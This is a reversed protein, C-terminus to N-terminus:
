DEGLEQSAFKLTRCNEMVTRVVHVPAGDPVHAEIELTVEVNAGTQANLLDEAREQALRQM